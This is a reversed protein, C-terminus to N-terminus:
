RRRYEEPRLRRVDAPRFWTSRTLIDGPTYRVHVAGACWAVATGRVHEVEGDDWVVRVEVPVQEEFAAVTVPRQVEGAAFNAVRRPGAAV